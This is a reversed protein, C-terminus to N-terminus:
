EHLSQTEREYFDASSNNTDQLVEFGAAESAELDKKRMLTHGKYVESLSVYGADIAPSLRKHNDSSGGNFVEMGDEVWSVPVTVVRDIASGPVQVLNEPRAVFDHITTGDPARFLVFTPSNLSLTYANAQGTKIVVELYRSEEILDGPAPHYTPNPFYVPNYCVFYGEHNLNVSLPYQATHNIAGRLCIVADAGAELPFSTGSGGIKWVAQIVPVFDPFNGDEDLWPNASTSNYPSLTGLCLGDLYTTYRDNNHVIVYQDSQYNGEEPLKSCGGCYLEKIVLAGAKSHLLDVSLSVDEDSVLVKDLTGNFLDNGSRDSVSVRYIGNPLRTEATASSNTTLKYATGGSISEISVAAGEGATFGEPYVAKVTLRNLGEEYPEGMDMCGGLLLTAGALLLIITKNQM